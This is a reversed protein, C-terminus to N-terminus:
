AAAGKWAQVMQAVTLELVTAGPAAVALIGDAEVVGLAALWTGAMAAEFALAHEDAVEVLLRGNSEAFLAEIVGIEGAADTEGSQGALLADLAIKAGLRGGICMEALAVGLGGESLDHAARVLGARMARHLARYRVLPQPPMQPAVGVLEQASGGKGDADGAGGGLARERDAGGLGGGDQLGADEPGSRDLLHHLLSGGLEGRTEGVLYIRSGPTKLDSTVTCGIDPVIGVASILLTGPIPSGNFENFLSDKGSIFPTRYALAADYCGQCTRVLSGLRDPFTPNGWCFNDLIALQDPDAGVAVANRVAEDVASVAMAYPDARGLLPNVGASLVFGRAHEWTGLPKLVAADAPGDMQPGVFPRVVTGGRVEHDYRRVIPEKSALTPHALMAMLLEGLATADTAV